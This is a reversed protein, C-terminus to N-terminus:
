RGSNPHRAMTRGDGAGTEIYASMDGPLLPSPNVPQDNSVSATDGAYVVRAAQGIDLQSSIGATSVVPNGVQGGANTGAPISQSGPATQAQERSFDLGPLHETYGPSDYKAM